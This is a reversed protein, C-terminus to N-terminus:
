DDQPAAAIVKENYKGVSVLGIFIALPWCLIVITVINLSGTVASAVAIVCLILAALWSSYFLGLPGFFFTLIFVIEYSKTHDDIYQQFADSMIM